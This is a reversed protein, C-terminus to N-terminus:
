AEKWVPVLLDVLDGVTIANKFLTPDPDGKVYDELSILLDVADLSDMDLDVDLRKELSISDADIEFESILIEKVIKYIAAKDM